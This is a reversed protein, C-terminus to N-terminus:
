HRIGGRPQHLSLWYFSSSSDVYNDVSQPYFCDDDNQRRGTLVGPDSSPAATFSSRARSPDPTRVEKDAATRDSAANGSALLKRPLHWGNPLM